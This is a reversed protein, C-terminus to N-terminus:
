VHKDVYVETTIPPKKVLPEKRNDCILKVTRRQGRFPSMKLWVVRSIPDKGKLQVDYALSVTTPSFGLLDTTESVRM